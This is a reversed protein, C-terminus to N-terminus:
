TSTLSQIHSEAMMILHDIPIEVVELSATTHGEWGIVKTKRKAFEPELKALSGLETTCVPTFDNPHSFLLDWSNNLWEHFKIRGHTTEAEFDTARDGILLSM